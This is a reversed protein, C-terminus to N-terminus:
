GLVRSLTRQRPKLPRVTSRRLDTPAAVHAEMELVHVHGAAVDTPKTSLLSTVRSACSVLPVRHVSGCRIRSRETGAAGRAEPDERVGGCAGRSSSQRWAAHRGRHGDGYVRQTFRAQTCALLTSFTRFSVKKADSQARVVEYTRGRVRGAIGARRVSMKYNSIKEGVGM